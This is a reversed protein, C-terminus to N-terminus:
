LTLGGDAVLVAGTVFGSADSCLWLVAAAIESPDSIRGLPVAQAIAELPVHGEIMRSLLGTAVPGPAVANIRIGSPALEAAAAKTLGVIGHKTASYIAVNPIARVGATSSTNVIVGGGHGLMHRVEHKVGLFVGRLNISVLRDFDEAALEHIPGYPGEVGANNLAFDIRGFRGAALAVAAEVATEDRVDAVTFVAAPAGAAVMEAEYAAADAVAIDAVVVNAGAEAFALACARGIGSAGGTIFATKGSFDYAVQTM